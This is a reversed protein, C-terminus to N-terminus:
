RPPSAGHARYLADVVASRAQSTAGRHVGRAPGSARCPFGADAGVGPLEIRARVADHVGCGAAGRWEVVLLVVGSVGGRRRLVEDACGLRLSRGADRLKTAREVELRLGQLRPEARVLEVALRKSSSADSQAVRSAAMIVGYTNRQVAGTEGFHRGDTRKEPVAGGLLQM